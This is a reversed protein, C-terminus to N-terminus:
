VTFLSSFFPHPDFLYVITFCSPLLFLAFKKCNILCDSVSLSQCLLHCVSQCVSVFMCVSM